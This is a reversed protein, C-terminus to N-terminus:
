LYILNHAQRPSPTLLFMPDNALLNKCQNGSQMQM